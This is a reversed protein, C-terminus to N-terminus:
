VACHDARRLGPRPQKAAAHQAVLLAQDPHGDLVVLLLVGGGDLVVPPSVQRAKECHDVVQLGRGQHHVRLHHLQLARGPFVADFPQVGAPSGRHVHGLAQSILGSRVLQPGTIAQRGHGVPVPLLVPGPADLDLPRQLRGLLQSAVDDPLRIVSVVPAADVAPVLVDGVLPRVVFLRQQRKLLLGWGSIFADLPDELGRSAM